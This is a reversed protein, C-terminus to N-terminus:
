YKYYFINSNFIIKEECIINLNLFLYIRLLVNPKKNLNKFDYLM